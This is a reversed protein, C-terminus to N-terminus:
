HLPKFITPGSLPVIQLHPRPSHTDSHAYAQSEWGLQRFTLIRSTAKLHLHLVRLEEQVMGAQLRWTEAKIIISQVESGTLWGWNLMMRILTAKTDTWLLLVRLCSCIPSKGEPFVTVTSVSHALGAGVRVKIVLSAIILAEPQTWQCKMQLSTGQIGAMRSIVVNPM